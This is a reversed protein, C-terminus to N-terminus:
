LWSIMSVDDSFVPRGSPSVKITQVPKLEIEPKSTESISTFEELETQVPAEILRNKYEDQADDVHKQLRTIKGTLRKTDRHEFYSQPFYGVTGCM